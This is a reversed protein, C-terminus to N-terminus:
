GSRLSLNLSFLLRKVIACKMTKRNIGAPLGTYNYCLIKFCCKSLRVFLSFCQIVHKFHHFNECHIAMLCPRRGQVPAHRQANRKRENQFFVFFFVHMVTEMHPLSVATCLLANCFSHCLVLIVHSGIISGNRSRM